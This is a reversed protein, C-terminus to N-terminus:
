EGVPCALECRRCWKIRREDEADCDLAPNAAEIDSGFSDYGEV